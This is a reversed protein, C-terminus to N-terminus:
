SSCSCFKESGGDPGVFFHTSNESQSCSKVMLQCFCSLLSTFMRLNNSIFKHSDYWKVGLNFSRYKFLARVQAENWRLHIHSLCVNSFIFVLFCECFQEARHFKDCTYIALKYKKWSKINKKGNSCKQSCESELQGVCPFKVEDATWVGTRYGLSLKDRHQYWQPAKPQSKNSKPLLKRLSYNTNPIKILMTLLLRPCVDRRKAPAWICVLQIKSFFMYLQLENLSKKWRRHM